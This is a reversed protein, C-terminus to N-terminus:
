GDIPIKLIVKTGGAIGNEKTLDEIEVSANLQTQANLLALRDETLRMGLSKKTSASKSKLERAKSRGIGNDEIVCELVVPSSKTIRIKLEGAEEKHLLGHWIANEVYPQIVLPPVYISDSQVDDSVSITYNFKKDFRISEMEIYLRLAELENTLTVAKSNSNDLILRILKAFRTLYLSATQQDSKVIYRNISNLCNFIFHPNMQARLAQMEVDAMKQKTDSLVKEAKLKEEEARARVIKNACLSAITTLISLHKQTFYGKRSHECDIVGLVKGGWVIPVTIESYRVEDDIIYRPDKTTDKIIEGKGTQAVSGTIGKGLPIEIPQVISFQEPSKPGHAAKQILINKTEDLLYIVCDEFQLKGICNRAVDWLIADVSQHADMSTAFYTIAQEAELEEQKEQIKTNRSRIFLWLSIAVVATCISVFWWTAWFPPKIEFGFSNKAATWDINNISAEVLLKYSGSSLFSFRVQNTNGLYKWEDDLGALKYRYKVKDPNNFYPSAFVVEISRGSYDLSLPQDFDYILSDAKGVKAQQFYVSLPENPRSLHDPHLYNIGNVGGLFLYGDKSRYWSNGNFGYGQVNDSHDFLNLKSTSPDYRFIGNESTAWIIGKEDQYLSLIFVNDFLNTFKKLVTKGDIQQATYLGDSCNFLLRSDPLMFGASIFKNKFPLQVNEKYNLASDLRHLGKDTTIWITGDAGQFAFNSNEKAPPIDPMSLQYTKGNLLYIADRGMILHDGNKLTHIDDVFDRYNSERTKENDYTPRKFRHTKTDLLWTGLDTAGVVLYKGDYVLGRISPFSLRDERQYSPPFFIWDGKKKNWSAIGYGTGLWLNGESDEVIKRVNDIAVPLEDYAKRIRLLGIPRHHHSFRAVGDVTGLWVFGGKDIYIHNAYDNTGVERGNLYFKLKRFKQTKTNYQYIGTNTTAFFLNQAYQQMSRISFFNLAQDGIKAPSYVPTIKRAKYNYWYTTGDWTTVAASDENLPFVFMGDLNELSDVEGSQLNYRYLQSGHNIFLSQQHIAFLRTNYPAPVSIKKSIPHFAGTKEEYELIEKKSLLWLKKDTAQFLRFGPDIQPLKVEKFDKIKEEFCFLKDTTYVWLKGNDDCIMGAYNGGPNFSETKRGDFRQILRPHQIWLFGKQDKTIGRITGPKVGLNYDFMQIHYDPLQAHLTFFLCLFLLTLLAQGLPFFRVHKQVSTM